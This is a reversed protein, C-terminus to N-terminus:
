VSADKHANRVTDPKGNVLYVGGWVGWEKNEQGTQLCLANVPCSACLKDVQKAFIPDNEYDDFFWNVELGSCSAYEHWDFMSQYRGYGM